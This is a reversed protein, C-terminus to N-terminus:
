STYLPFSFVAQWFYPLGTYCVPSFSDIQQMKESVDDVPHGVLYSPRSKLLLAHLFVIM